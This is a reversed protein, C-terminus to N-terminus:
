NEAQKNVGFRDKVRKIVKIILTLATQDFVSKTFYYWPPFWHATLPDLSHSFLPLGGGGKGRFDAGFIRGMGWFGGRTFPIICEGSTGGDTNNPQLRKPAQLTHLTDRYEDIEMISALTMSRDLCSYVFM